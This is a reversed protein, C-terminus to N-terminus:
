LYFWLRTMCIFSGVNSFSVHALRIIRRFLHLFFSLCFASRYGWPIRREGQLQQCKRLDFSKRAMQQTWFIHSCLENTVELIWCFALEFTVFVLSGLLLM